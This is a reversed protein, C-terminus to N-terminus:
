AGGNESAENESITCGMFTPDSRRLQLGAGRNATNGSITLYDLRPSSYRLNLGGGVGTAANDRINFYRITPISYNMAICGGSSSKGGRITFGVLKAANREGNEFTVM